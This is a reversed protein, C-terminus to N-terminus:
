DLKDKNKKRQQNSLYMLHEKLERGYKRSAYLEIGNKLTIKHDDAHNYNSLFDLNILQKDSIRFFNFEDILIKSYYTLNKVASFKKDNLLNVTTTGFDAECYIIHDSDVIEITGGIRQFIINSSQHFSNGSINKLFLKIQSQYTENQKGKNYNAKIRNVCDTLRELDYPKFIFDLAALHLAKIIFNKDTLGTIFIVSFDINGVEFCKQLLDFGSGDKLNIDLFLIEPRLTFIQFFAREITEAEGIIEIEKFNQQLIEKLQKREIEIDEILLTKIKM